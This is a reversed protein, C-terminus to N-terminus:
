IKQFIENQLIGSIKRAYEPDTAYGAQQLSTIYTVPDKGNQLAKEYRPSTLLYQAYDEFSEEYSQYSRFDAQEKVAVGDSYEITTTVVKDGGWRQDAKIGFLNHSSGGDPKKMVSQGWGTELASQALLAKPSVGLKKGISKAIDTLKNIFDVPSTFFPTTNQAGSAASVESSQSSDKGKSLQRVMVDALGLGQSRSLSTAIQKDFMEQYFKGQDSDLLGEGLSADRMSKLMMQMFIAEFEKAVAKIADPTEKRVETRLQSLGQLDTYLSATSLGPTM